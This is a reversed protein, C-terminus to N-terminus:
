LSPLATFLSGGHDRLWRRAQRYDPLVSEVVAYFAKSHNMERRHALEHVVVYDLVEEPALILRWNFNLNGKSSCSGWRTKQERITIRGYSVGMIRAYYAAKHTFIDRAISIYRARDKDSLPPQEAPPHEKRQKEFRALQRIVWDEKRRVFAEIFSRPCRKPARVIVRGDPTVQLATTRRPSYIIEYTFPHNMSAGGSINVTLMIAFTLLGSERLIFVRRLLTLVPLRTRPLFLPRVARTNILFIM